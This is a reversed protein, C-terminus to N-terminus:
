KEHTLLNDDTLTHLHSSPPKQRLQLKLQIADLIQPDEFTVQLPPQQLNPHSQLGSSYHEVVAQAPLEEQWGWKWKIRSRTARDNRM